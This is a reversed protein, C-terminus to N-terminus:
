TRKPGASSQKSPTDAESVGIAGTRWSLEIDIWWSAGVGVSLEALCDFSSNRLQQGLAFIAGGATSRLRRWVPASRRNYHTAGVPNSGASGGQSHWRM